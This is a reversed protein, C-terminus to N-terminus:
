TGDYTVGLHPPFDSTGAQILDPENWGGIGVWVVARSGSPGTASPQTWEARVGTVGSVPFTYGDWNTSTLTQWGAVAVPAAKTFPLPATSPPVEVPSTAAAPTAPTAPTFSLSANMAVPRPGCATLVVAGTVTLAVLCWKARCAAAFRRIM